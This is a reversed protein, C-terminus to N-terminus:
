VKLRALRREFEEEDIEGRAYRERLIDISRNETRSTRSRSFHIVGFIIAGIILLWFFGMAGMAWISNTPNFYPGYGYGIM